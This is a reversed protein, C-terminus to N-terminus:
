GKGSKINKRATISYYEVGETMQDSQLRGERGFLVGVSARHHFFNIRPDRTMIDRQSETACGKSFVAKVAREGTNDSVEVEYGIENLATQSAKIFSARAKCCLPDRVLFWETSLPEFPMLVECDKHYDPGYWNEPLPDAMTVFFMRKKGDLGPSLIRDFERLAKRLEKEDWTYSITNLGTVAAFVGDEFGTESWDGREVAIEKHDAKVRELFQKMYDFAVIRSKESPKLVGFHDGIGCGVDLVLSGPPIESFVNNWQQRMVSEFVHNHFQRIKLTRRLVEPDYGRVIKSQTTSLSFCGAHRTVDVPVVVAGYPAVEATGSVRVLGAESTTEEPAGISKWVRQAEADKNEELVKKRKIM